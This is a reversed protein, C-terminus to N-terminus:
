ETEELSKKVKEICEPCVAIDGQIEWGNEQAFLVAQEEAEKATGQPESTEIGCGINDCIINVEYTFM